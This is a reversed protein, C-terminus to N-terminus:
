AGFGHGHHCSACRGERGRLGIGIGIIILVVSAVLGTGIGLWSM